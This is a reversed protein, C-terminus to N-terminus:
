PAVKYGDSPSVWIVQQVPAAMPAGDITAQAVLVGDKPVYATCIERDLMSGSQTVMLQRLKAAAEGTVEAGNVSFRATEIDAKRIPGCVKGDRITVPTVTDMVIVPNPNVLVSSPNEFEGKANKRYSAMSMCTKRERNPSYCQLKGEGAPEIPSPFPPAAFATLCLAFPLGALVARIM